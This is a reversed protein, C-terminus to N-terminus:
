FPAEVSSDSSIGADKEEELLWIVTPEDERVPKSVQILHKGKSENEEVVVQGRSVDPDSPNETVPKGRMIFLVCIAAVVAAVGGAPSFLFSRLRDFVSEAQVEASANLRNEIGEYFNDFAMSDVAEDVHSRLMEGLQAFSALEKQLSEDAEIQREFELREEDSMQDDLYRHLLELERDIM